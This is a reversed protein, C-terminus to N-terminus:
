LAWSIASSLRKGKQYQLPFNSEDVLPLIVDANGVNKMFVDAESNPTVKVKYYDDNFHNKLFQILTENTTTDSGGGLFHVIFDNEQQLAMAQKLSPINRKQNGATVYFSGMVLFVPSTNPKSELAHRSREVITPPFFSPVIYRNHAPTLFFINSAGDVRPADDHCIFIHGPQNIKDMHHFNTNKGYWDTAYTTTHLAVKPNTPTGFFIPGCTTQNYEQLIRRLDDNVFGEPGFYFHPVSATDLKWQSHKDSQCSCFYDVFSYFTESHLNVWALEIYVITNSIVPSVWHRPPFCKYNHPLATEFANESEVLSDNSTAGEENKVRADGKLQKIDIPAQFSFSDFSQLHIKSLHLIQVSVLIGTFFLYFRISNYPRMSVTEAAM